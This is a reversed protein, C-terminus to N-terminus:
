VQEIRRKEAWSPIKIEKIEKHGCYTCRYERDMIGNENQTAEQRIVEGYEKLTRFNCRECVFSDETIDYQMIVTEKTEDDFWVDFDAELNDEMTIMEPTLYEDEELENLLRLKRGSKPSKMQKFRIKKLRKELTFPYYYELYAYFIYGVIFAIMFSLFAVFIYQYFQALGLWGSIMNFSFFFLGFSLVMTARRLSKVEHLSVYKYREARNKKVRSSILYAIHIFIAIAIFAFGALRSIEYWQEALTSTNM